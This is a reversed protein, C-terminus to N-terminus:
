GRLVLVADRPHGAQEGEPATITLTGGQIRQPVTQTEGTCPDFWEAQYAHGAPLDLIIQGGAPFYVVVLDKEASALALPQIGAPGEGPRIIGPEPCLRFFPVVEGFFRRLHLLYALGPQDEELLMWPGWSNEFGHIVGMGCFAGRWAGRRTHEPDCYQHGPVLLDFAPNREYGWEAFVASGRWDKFSLAIQQEIGSALWANQPGTSGWYQFMIADVAGPDDSFRHAFAPERPGNHVSIIHGHAGTRKIWNAVRMAWRDAVPKYNWDGNPYFEYENLPTWFYLCNFADYRAILYRMRLEEWEPVFIQRSNFPFEFGWAEMIMELGMGLAEAQRVVDDVTKFYELNFRDFLPAQESGGWPWTRHTQWASYGAPPHFPSVPVRVRLLNFGQAARRRLFAPVDGGCFQMAFLNYVTDGLLFAPEGSEYTFGWAQGPTAKLFGRGEAPEVVFTGSQVLHIDIPNVLTQFHWKGAVPPNFRVKWTHDGDYFAPVRMDAGGPGNFRVDVTVGTFPNEYDNPSTFEWEMVQRQLMKQDPQSM